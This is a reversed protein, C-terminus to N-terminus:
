RPIVIGSEQLRFAASIFLAENYCRALLSMAKTFVALFIFYPVRVRTSRAGRRGEGAQNRSPPM